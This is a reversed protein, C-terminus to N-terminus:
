DPSSSHPLPLSSNAMNTSDKSMATLAVKTTTVSLRSVAPHVISASYMYVCRFCERSMIVLIIQHMTYFSTRYGMETWSSQM